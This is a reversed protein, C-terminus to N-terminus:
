VEALDRHSVSVVSRSDNSELVAEFPAKGEEETEIRIRDLLVIANNIVIGALSVVGLLTMFSFSQGSLMTAIESDPVPLLNNVTPDDGFQPNRAQAHGPIVSIGDHIMQTVMGQTMATMFIMAWVGVTIASLMILTRRHNRFLNRWALKILIRM